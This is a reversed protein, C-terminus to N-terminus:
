KSKTENIEILRLIESLNIKDDLRYEEDLKHWWESYTDGMDDKPRPQRRLVPEIDKILENISQSLITRQKLNLGGNIRYSTHNYAEAKALEIIVSPHNPNLRKIGGVPHAFVKIDQGFEEKAVAFGRILHHNESVVFVSSNKPILTKAERINAQTNNGGAILINSLPVGFQTVALDRADECQSEDKTENDSMGTFIIKSVRRTHWLMSAWHVRKAFKDPYNLWSTGFALAFDAKDVAINKAEEFLFNIIRKRVVPDGVISMVRLKKERLFASTSIPLETIESNEVLM